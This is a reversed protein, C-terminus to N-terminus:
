CISALFWCLFCLLGFYFYNVYFLIRFTLFLLGQCQTPLIHMDLLAMSFWSYDFTIFDKHCAVTSGIAEEILLMDSNARWLPAKLDLPVVIWVKWVDKGLPVYLSVANHEISAIKAEAVATMQWNLLKCKSDVDDNM